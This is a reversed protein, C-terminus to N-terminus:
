GLAIDAATGITSKTVLRLPVTSIRWPKMCIRCHTSILVFVSSVAGVAPFGSERSRARRSHIIGSQSVDHRSVAFILVSGYIATINSGSVM